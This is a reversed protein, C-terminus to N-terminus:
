SAKEKGRALFEATKGFRFLNGFEYGHRYWRSGPNDLTAEWEDEVLRGYEAAYEDIFRMVVPDRLIDEAHRHGQPVMHENVLARLVQPNDILPCPRKLNGNANYPFANRIAQFFPSNAAELISKERINDVGFHAFACMEVRGSNLIHLYRRGAALCGGVAPGDNWFDGLFLPHRDRLEAVRRGCHLRQAPTPVLALVPDKGVPMFMFYWAFVAGREQYYEVFEDTTVTEVNERTYTVSIGFMVGRRQLREMAREIEAFVGAGRRRDTEAAYGEVSIAPAVNGLRALDKVVSEDFHTGNTYTLFYMDNHKRFLRLLLDTKLYPEGGTLVVFYNGIRKCQALLSDMEAETLEGDRSYLGAYCGTCHLNCNMWPSIAVFFPLWTGSNRIRTRITAGKVAWHFFLNEILKRRAIPNSYKGLHLLIAALGGGRELDRALRRLFARLLPSAFPIRELVFLRRLDEPRGTLCRALARSMLLKVSESGFSM